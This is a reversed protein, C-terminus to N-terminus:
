QIYVAFNPTFFSRHSAGLVHFDDDGDDYRGLRRDSHARSHHGKRNSDVDDGDDGDDAGDRLGCEDRHLARRYLVRRADFQVAVGLPVIGIFDHCFFGGRADQASKAFIKEQAIEPHGDEGGGESDNYRM